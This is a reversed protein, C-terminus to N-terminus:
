AHPLDVYAGEILQDPSIGLQALLDHAIAVGEHTPENEGLVVELEVFHGLEDVCDLHVRTRGITFITRHKKVRGTQGYALSLANLLTHPSTTPSIIYFSEKPGAIDPRQYYILQGETDSFIRLKLRGGACAFYTDDQLIESPGSDALQAVRPALAEVSDIRAKIEINRAMLNMGM